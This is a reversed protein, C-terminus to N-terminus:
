MSNSGIPYPSNLIFFTPSYHFVDSKDISRIFAQAEKKDISM